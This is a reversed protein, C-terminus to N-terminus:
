AGCFDPPRKEMFASIGEAYDKTQGLFRQCSTEREMSTAFSHEEAYQLNQKLTQLSLPAMKNLDSAKSKAREFFDEGVFNILKAQELDEALLTQNWLFFELSKQRGLARVLNFSSGADPILGLQCFGSVFRAGPRALILDAALALSLGAGACVGNIAAIVILPSQRLCNILPNWETELTHGLDSVGAGDSRRDGLDQGSCFAKGKGTLIVSRVKKQRATEEVARVIELKAEKNLAGYVEPRNITIINASDTSEVTINKLITFGVTIHYCKKFLM